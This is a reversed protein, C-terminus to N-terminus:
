AGYMPAQMNSLFITPAPVDKLRTQRANGVEGVIQVPNPITWCVSLQKGVADAGALFKKAFAQNVVATSPAGAADRESFDRGSLLPTGMTEFYGPTIVLFQADPSDADNTPLEAGLAFCSGSGREEFPLFHTTGAAEVGPTRRVAELLSTIYRARDPGDPHKVPSVSVHMSVVHEPRCGLDVSILRYFSRLLVRHGGGGGRLTGQKLTDHLNVRSLRLAPLLGFLVTTCFALALAFLFVASDMRISQM